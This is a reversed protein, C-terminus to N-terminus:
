VECRLLEDEVDREASVPGALSRSKGRGTTRSQDRWSCTVGRVNHSGAIVVIRVKLDVVDLDVRSRRRRIGRRDRSGCRVCATSRFGGPRGRGGTVGGLLYRCGEEASQSAEDQGDGRQESYGILMSKAYSLVVWLDCAYLMSLVSYRYSYGSVVFLMDDVQRFLSVLDWRIPSTHM